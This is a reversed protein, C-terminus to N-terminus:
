RTQGYHEVIPAGHTRGNEIFIENGINGACICGAVYVGPVNSLHSVPDVVPRKSQPDYSVGLQDFLELLPEYGTLALVFDTPVRLPRDDGLRLLVNTPEICEVVSPLLAQISGERIRNELDPGIWYKLGSFAPRRYSITVQGGARWVLLAAEAASGKGGVILVRRGHYREPEDFFHSVHPLEEGPVGLRNPVDYAGFALVVARARWQSPQGVHSVASVTFDGAQGAIRTVTQYTEVPLQRAAVVRTYYAVAERRTPKAGSCILPVDGLELLDPTSYFVLNAPFRRINEAVGGRELVVQRLGAQQAALSTALGSPGAGVIVLDLVDLASSM